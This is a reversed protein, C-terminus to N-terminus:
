RVRALLRRLAPTRVKGVIRGIETGDPARAVILPVGTVGVAELVEPHHDFRFEEFEAGAEILAARAADCRACGADTFLTVASSLPTLDLATREVRRREVLRFFLAVGLAVVVAAVVVVIRAIPEDM